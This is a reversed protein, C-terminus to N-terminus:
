VYESQAGDKISIEGKGDLDRILNIIEKQKAEVESVKMKAAFQMDEKLGEVARKSMNSFFKERVDIPASRLAVSLSSM